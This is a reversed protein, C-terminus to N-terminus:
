NIRNTKGAIVEVWPCLGDRLDADPDDAAANRWLDAVAERLARTEEPESPAEAPSGPVGESVLALVQHLEEHTSMRDFTTLTEQATKM